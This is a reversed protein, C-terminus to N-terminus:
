KHLRLGPALMPYINDAEHYQEPFDFFVLAQAIHLKLYSYQPNIRLYRYAHPINQHPIIVHLHNGYPAQFCSHLKDPDM